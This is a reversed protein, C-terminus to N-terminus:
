YNKPLELCRCASVAEFVDSEIIIFAGERNEVSECQKPDALIVANDKPIRRIIEQTLDSKKGINFILVNCTESHKRNWDKILDSIFAARKSPVLNSNLLESSSTVSNVLCLAVIALMLLQTFSSTKMKFDVRARTQHSDPVDLCTAPIPEMKFHFSIMVSPRTTFCTSDLLASEVSQRSDLRQEILNFSISFGLEILLQFSAHNFASEL